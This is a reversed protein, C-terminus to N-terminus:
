PLHFWNYRSQFVPLTLSTESFIICLTILLIIIFPYLSSRFKKLIITIGDVYFILFPILTGSILRGSRMYPYDKSPYHSNGFDFLLSIFVLFLLSLFLSTVNAGTVIKNIVKSNDKTKNFFLSILSVAIFLASSIAYFLDFAPSSLEKAHWTLEGRWFTKMLEHWFFAFGDLSFMPHDFIQLLPKVSWGLMKTKESAATIDGLVIYNRLHWLFLPLLFTLLLLWLKYTEKRPQDSRIVKLTCRWLVLFFVGIIAINSYKILLTAATLAGAIFYLKYGASDSLCLAMLSYLSLTFFLPSLIDSNISYFVDQPFVALLLPVAIALVSNEPYFKKIFLYACVMLLSYTVINLYRLWYLLTGKDLNLFEGAKYWIGAIFYYTPPSFAEHNSSKTWAPIMSDISSKLRDPSQTWLPAPISNDRYSAPSSLYEPSSFTIIAKSSEQDYLDGGKYPLYGRSYKYVLDYHAWEDVDNFFPFASSFIFIRLAAILTLFFVILVEYRCIFGGKKSIFSDTNM